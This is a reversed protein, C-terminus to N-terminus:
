DGYSPRRTDDLHGGRSGRHLYFRSLGEPAIVVLYPDAATLHAFHRIFYAALQGYGHCVFWIRRTDTSITGLQYYRATRAISIHHEQAPMLSLGLM